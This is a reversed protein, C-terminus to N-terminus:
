VVILIMHEPLNKIGKDGTVFVEAKALLATAVHIADPMRQSPTEARLKASTYLVERTIPVPEVFDTFLNEYLAILKEDGKRLPHVLVEGLTLESTIFRVAAEEFHQFQAKFAQQDPASGESLYILINTDLYVLAGSKVHEM